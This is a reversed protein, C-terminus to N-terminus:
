PRPPLMVSLWPQSANAGNLLDIERLLDAPTAANSRNVDAQALPLPASGNLHDILALVDFPAPRGGLDVDGPLFGVDVRDHPNPGIPEGELGEVLAVLTTWQGPTIPEALIVDYTSVTGDIPVVEIIAPASGATDTLQFSEITLEDHTSADRVPCTFLLRFREIGQRTKGTISLDQQVDIFGDPPDSVGIRIPGTHLPADPLDELTPTVPTGNMEVLRTEPNHPRFRVFPTGATLADFTISAVRIPGYSGGGGPLVGVAYDITGQVADVSEYIEWELPPDGPEAAVFSLLAADYELFFQGGAIETDTPGLEISVTFTQGVAFCGDALTISLVPEDARAAKPGAAACALALAAAILTMTTPTNAPTLLAM